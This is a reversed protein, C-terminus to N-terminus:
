KTQLFISAVPQQQKRSSFCFFFTEDISSELLKSKLHWFPMRYMWWCKLISSFKVNKKMLIISTRTFAHRMKDFVFLCVWLRRFNLFCYNKIQTKRNIPNLYIFWCFVYQFSNCYRITKLTFFFSLTEFPDSLFAANHEFNHTPIVIAIWFIYQQFSFEFNVVVVICFLFWFVM